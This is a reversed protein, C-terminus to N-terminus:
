EFLETASLSRVADTANISANLPIQVTRSLSNDQSQFLPVFDREEKQEKVNRLRKLLVPDRMDRASKFKVIISRVSDGGAISLVHQASASCAVLPVLFVFLLRRLLM